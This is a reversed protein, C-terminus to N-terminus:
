RCRTINMRRTALSGKLLPSGLNGTSPIEHFHGVGEALASWGLNSLQIKVASEVTLVASEM